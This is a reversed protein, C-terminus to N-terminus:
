RLHAREVETRQTEATLEDDVDIVAVLYGGRLLAALHENEDRPLREKIVQTTIEPDDYAVLVIIWKYKRFMIKEPKDKILGHLRRAVIL